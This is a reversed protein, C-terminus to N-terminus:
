QEVPAKKVGRWAEFVTTSWPRICSACVVVLFPLAVIRYRVVAGLIPVVAGIIGGLVIVFSLITLLFPVQSKDPKRFRVIVLVLIAVYLLNELAAAWMIASHAEWPMPRLYALALAHPYNLVYHWADTVPPVWVLSGADVMEAVSIFAGQKKALVYLFDGGSFFYGANSAVLFCALLVVMWMLLPYRVPVWRMLVYFFLGPIFAIIVYEKLYFSAAFLVLTLLLRWMEFRHILMTFHWVFLGFVFLLPAEKLVGSSWFLVSPLVFCATFLVLPHVTLWRHFTRYLAVLGTFSFLCMILTHVAYHGGSLFGILVNLRIMTQGDHTLGYSYSATWCHLKDNIVALAPDELGFGFMYRFFYERNENWLGRIVMADDFYRFADNSDRHGYYRTYVVWLMAAAALKLAFALTPHWPGLGPLKYFNFKRIMWFIIAM